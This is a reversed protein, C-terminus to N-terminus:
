SKRSSLTINVSPIVYHILGIGTEEVAYTGDKNDRVVIGRLGKNGFKDMFSVKDGQQFSKEMQEM